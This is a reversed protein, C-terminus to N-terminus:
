GRKAVFFTIAAAVVGVLLAGGSYMALNDYVTEIISPVVGRIMAATALGGFGLVVTAVIMAATLGSSLADPGYEVRTAAALAPAVSKAEAPQFVEEGEDATSGEALADDLGARTDDGMEVPKEEEGSYIEDLLEAGLSTDDSERTLDLIGSGSGV